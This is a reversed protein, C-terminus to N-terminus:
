ACPTPRIGRRLKLSPHIEGEGFLLEVELAGRNFEGLLLEALIQYSPVRSALERAIGLVLACGESDLAEREWGFERRQARIEEGRDEDHFAEPVAALFM